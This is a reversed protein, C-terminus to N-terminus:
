PHYTKLENVRSVVSLRRKKEPQIAQSTAEEDQPVNERLPPHNSVPSLPMQWIMKSLTSSQFDIFLENTVIQWLVDLKSHFRLFSTSICKKEDCIKTKPFLLNRPSCLNFNRGPPQREYTTILTSSARPSACTELRWFPQYEISLIIRIQVKTFM